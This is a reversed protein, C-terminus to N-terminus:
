IGNATRCIPLVCVRTAPTNHSTLPLHFRHVFVSPCVLTEEADRGMTETEAVAEHLHWMNQVAVNADSLLTKSMSSDRDCNVNLVEFKCRLLVFPIYLAIRSLFEM